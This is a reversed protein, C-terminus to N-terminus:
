GSKPAARRMFPGDTFENEHLEAMRRAVLADLQEESAAPHLRRIHERLVLVGAEALDLALAWTGTRLDGM